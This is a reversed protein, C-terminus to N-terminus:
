ITNSSRSEVSNTRTILALLSRTVSAGHSQSRHERTEEDPSVRVMPEIPSQLIVIAM